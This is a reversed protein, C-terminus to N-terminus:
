KRKKKGVPRQGQRSKEAAVEMKKFKEESIYQKNTIKWELLATKRDGDAAKKWFDLAEDAMGNMAYIDGAHELVASNNETSDINKLAADMYNKADAYREEMFLIWAYTDLYTANNPEAKITKYSMSEAKHLDKGDQSMYYAYNNLAMINDDKWQLCSDYSAYAAAKDGKNHLLDGMVAYLDSVLDASSETKVQAVGRRFEELAKEEDKEQCYAMGGFYYFVMEEPNYQHAAESQSIVEGYKKQNWLNQILQLRANVKDPALRLTHKLASCISDAPMKKLAMYTAKLEAIDASPQAVDLVRDFLAIVQTSDGGSAENEQIFSRFMMVKTELDTKKGLLIKDLMARAQEESKASKYYDYLSMQAYADDPEEKLVEQFLKYAEKQRDHQMLWNGLMTKYNTDLPHQESLSKLENYAAKTDGMQEYTRMKSLAFQESEGEEVELRAITNLVAKYDKQQSYLEVLMRLADTNSHKRAYLHEYADIAKDYQQNGLYYQALREVYTLNDPSLEIAKKMYDVAISDKKLSPHLYYTSLYYYVEASQPNIKRAHEFLDFAASFHKAAIQRGGELFYYDFRKQDNAGLTNSDPAVAKAPAAVKKKRALSPLAMASALVIVVALAVNKM